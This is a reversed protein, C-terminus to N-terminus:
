KSKSKAWFKSTIVIGRNLGLADHSITFITSIVRDQSFAFCCVPVDRINGHMGQPNPFHKHVHIQMNLKDQSQALLHEQGSNSDRCEWFVFWVYSIELHPQCWMCHSLRLIDGMYWHHIRSAISHRPFSVIPITIGVGRVWRESWIIKTTSYLDNIVIVYRLLRIQIGYPVKM